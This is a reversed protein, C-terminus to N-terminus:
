DNTAEEDVFITTELHGIKSKLYQYANKEYPWKQLAPWSKAVDTIKCTRSYSVCSTYFTKLNLGVANIVKLDSKLNLADESNAQLYNFTKSNLGM